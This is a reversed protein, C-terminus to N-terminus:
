PPNRYCRLVTAGYGPHLAACDPISAVGGRIGAQRGEDPSCRRTAAYDPIARGQWRGPNRGPGTARISRLPIRSRV